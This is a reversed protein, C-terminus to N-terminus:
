DILRQVDYYQSACRGTSPTHTGAHKSDFLAVRVVANANAHLRSLSTVDYQLDRLLGNNKAVSSASFHKSEM